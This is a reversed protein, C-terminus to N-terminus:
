PECSILWFAFFRFIYEKLRHCQIYKVSKSEVVGIDLFYNYPVQLVKLIKYTFKTQM